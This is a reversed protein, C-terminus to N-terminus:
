TLFKEYVKLTQEACKEVSFDNLRIVGKEILQCHLTENTLAKQIANKLESTSYPDVLIAADGAIEPLAAVNSSIVAAKSAFAELVTLGFGEHLSPCLYLKACQFLARLEENSVYDLWYGAKESKLKNIAHLTEETHWGARGVIVLPYEERIDKPLELYAAIIRPVNKRPQLTGTHLLIKPPLNFKKLVQNKETDSIKIKWWDSLGNHVVSINKEDINLYEVLEPVMAHSITIFHKVWTTTKKRLYNKFLDYKSHQWPPTRFMLTDHITAIMPIKTVRPIMHDTSHLLDIQQPIKKYILNSIPKAFSIFRAPRYPLPFIEGQPLESSRMGSRFGPYSFPTVSLNRKQFQNLLTQTYMGIGDIKGNTLRPEITTCTLGIRM